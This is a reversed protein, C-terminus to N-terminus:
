PGGRFTIGTVSTGDAMKAGPIEALQSGWSKKKPEGESGKPFCSGNVAAGNWYTVFYHSLWQFVGLSFKVSIGFTYRPSGFRSRSVIRLRFSQGDFGIISRVLFVFLSAAAVIQKVIGDRIERVFTGGIGVGRSGEGARRDAAIPSASQLRGRVIGRQKQDSSRTPTIAPKTLRIPLPGRCREMPARQPGKRAAPALFKLSGRRGEARWRVGRNARPPPARASWSFLPTGARSPSYRGLIHPSSAHVHPSGARGDGEM